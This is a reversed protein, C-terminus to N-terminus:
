LESSGVPVLSKDYSLEGRTKAAQLDDYFTAQNPVKGLKYKKSLSPSVKILEDTFFPDDYYLAKHCKIPKLTNELIILEDGMTMLEDPTMLFREKNSISTNTKGTNDDISRSM